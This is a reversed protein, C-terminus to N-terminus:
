SGLKCRESCEIYTKPVSLKMKMDSCFALVIKLLQDMGKKPTSSKMVLAHAFLLATIIVDGLKVGLKANHLANGMGAIYLAFLMPSLPCGHKVRTHVLPESLRGPLTLQICDNFYMSRILQVVKGGFGMQSLKTYLLEFCVSDYTKAIDCFAISISRHKWEAKRIVALTIFVCDTMSRKKRFRYQVSGYFSTM